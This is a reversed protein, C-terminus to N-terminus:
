RNQIDELILTRVLDPKARGKTEKMVQGILFDAANQKGSKVKEIVDPHQDIIAAILPRLADGDSIQTAGSEKVMSEPDKGTMMAPLMEKAMKGSLTGKEIM